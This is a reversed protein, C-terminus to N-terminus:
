ERHIVDNWAQEQGAEYAVGALWATALDVAQGEDVGQWRVLVVGLEDACPELWEVLRWAGDEDQGLELWVGARGLAQFVSLRNVRANWSAADSVSYDGGYLRAYEGVRSM